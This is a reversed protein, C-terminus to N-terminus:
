LVFPRRVKAPVGFAVVHDPIDSTAVSGAGLISGAGIRHSPLVTAGIGVHTFEGVEVDGGLSANPSIHAYRGIRCDHEVVAGSNVIAGEGIRAMANIVAGAMVVVGRGLDVSGSVMAGPSVLTFLEMGCGTVFQAIEMRLNNQGIGLACCVETPNAARIWSRDGLVLLPSRLRTAEPEDDIFGLVNYGCQTAIEMVVKGHGGAGFVVIKRAPM